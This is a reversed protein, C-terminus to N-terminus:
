ERPQVRRFLLGLLGKWAWFRSASLGVCGSTEWPSGGLVLAVPEYNLTPDRPVGWWFGGEQAAIERIRPPGRCVASRGPGGPKASPCLCQAGGGSAAGGGGRAAQGQPASSERQLRGPEASGAKSRAGRAHAQAPAGPPGHEGGESEEGEEDEDADEADEEEAGDWDEDDEDQVHPAADPPLMWPTKGGGM